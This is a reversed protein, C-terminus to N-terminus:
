QITCFTAYHDASYYRQEIAKKKKGDTVLFVLRYTGAQDNQPLRAKGEYYTQGNGSKPLRGENNGFVQVDLQANGCAAIPSPMTLCYAMDRSADRIYNPLISCHTPSQYAQVHTSVFLAALLAFKISHSM